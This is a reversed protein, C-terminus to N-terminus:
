GCASGYRTFWVEPRMSSVRPKSVTECFPKWVKLPVDEGYWNFARLTPHEALRQADTVAVSVKKSLELEELAPADHVGTLGSLRKM